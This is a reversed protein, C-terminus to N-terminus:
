LGVEPIRVEHDGHKWVEKTVPHYGTEKRIVAIHVDGGVTPLQSDVDQAGIMIRLFFDVCDIANQESFEDWDAELENLRWNNFVFLDASPEPLSSIGVPALHDLLEQRYQGLLDEVREEIRFKNMHDTGFVIRQIWDTQGAFAVGFEGPGFQISARNERADVRVISPDSKDSDYGALLLELGPRDPGPRGSPPTPYTGEYYGHLLSALKNSLGKVTYPGDGIEEVTGNVFESVISRVTRQDIVSIGTFMLGVPLEGLKFLKTAHLTQNYPVREAEELIQGVAKLEPNGSSDVKLKYNDDPDFYDLLRIPDVMRRTMSGLSDAGMVVAHRSALAVLTTM